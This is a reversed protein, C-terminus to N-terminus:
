EEEETEPLDADHYVNQTDDYDDLWDILRTIKEAMEPDSIETTM